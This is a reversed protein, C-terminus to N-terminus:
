ADIPFDGLYRGAAPAASLWKPKLGRATWTAGSVPDLYKAADKKGLPAGAKSRAKALLDTIPLPKSSRAPAPM